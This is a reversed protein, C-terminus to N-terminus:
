LLKKNNKKRGQLEMELECMWGKVGGYYGGGIYCMIIKKLVGM